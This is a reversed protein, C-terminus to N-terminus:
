DSAVSKSERLTPGVDLETAPQAYQLRVSAPRVKLERAVLTPLSDCCFEHRATYPLIIAVRGERDIPLFCNPLRM